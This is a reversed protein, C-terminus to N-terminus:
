GLFLYEFLAKALQSTQNLMMLVLLPLILTPQRVTLSLRLWSQVDSSSVLWLWCWLLVDCDFRSPFSM